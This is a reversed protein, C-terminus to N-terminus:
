GDHARAFANLWLGSVGDGLQVGGADLFPFSVRYGTAYVLVDVPERTGDAFRVHDGDLAAVDPKIAVDGHQLAHVLQSSVIPHTELVKHDPQPMGFRQLDGVLLRLLLTLAPQAIRPPIHPGSRFFADTPQGFIHKPLVYYGRRVSLMARAGRAAADCVIDCGSNGAGVVLVRKGDFLNAHHYDKSHLATGTFTGPYSPLVPDWQHGSAAIVADYRRPAAGRVTVEWAGDARAVREVTAGFTIHERLRHRDAFARIYELIRQRSPYDAYDEPMPFDDFASQTRSSIFHASDYMPTGPNAMDWIGGVDRHREFVHYALGNEQLARAAALGSPGAGIVAVRASM